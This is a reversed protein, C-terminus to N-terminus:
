NGGNRTNWYNAVIKRKSIIDSFKLLTLDNVRTQKILRALTDVMTLTAIFTEYKLTGRFIRIEFTNAHQTNVASYKGMREYNDKLAQVMYSNLAKTSTKGIYMDMENKLRGKNAWRELQTETRRSFEVFDYWYKEIFYALKGGNIMQERRTKGFYSRSLHIHLGCTGASHSNYGLSVLEKFAGKYNFDKLHSKLTAPHTAIEFGNNLSGDWMTYASGNPSLTKLIKHAIVNQTSSSYERGNSEDEDEDEDGDGDYDYNRYGTDVELEVGMYLPNKEKGANLFTLEKSTHPQGITKTTIDKFTKIDKPLEVKAVKFSNTARNYCYGCLDVKPMESTRTERSGCMDCHFTNKNTYAITTFTNGNVLYRENYDNKLGTLIHNTHSCVNFVNKKTEDDIEFYGYVNGRRIVYVKNSITDSPSSFDVSYLDFPKLDIKVFTNYNQLDKETLEGLFSIGLAEDYQYDIFLRNINELREDNRNVGPNEHTSVNYFNSQEHLFFHKSKKDQYVGSDLTIVDISTFSVKSVHKNFLDNMFMHLKTTDAGLKYSVLDDLKVIEIFWKSFGYSHVTNFQSYYVKINSLDDFLDHNKREVLYIRYVVKNDKFIKNLAEYNKRLIEKM